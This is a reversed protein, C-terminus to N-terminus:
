HHALAEDFDGHADAFRLRSGSFNDVSPLCGGPRSATKIQM